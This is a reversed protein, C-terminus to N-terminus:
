SMNALTNDHTRCVRKLVGILRKKEEEDEYKSVNNKLQLIQEKLRQVSRNRRENKRGPFNRRLM